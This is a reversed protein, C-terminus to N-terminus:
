VSGGLRWGEEQELVTFPEFTAVVQECGLRQLDVDTGFVTGDQDAPDVEIRRNSGIM